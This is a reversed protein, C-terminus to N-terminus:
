LLLEPNMKKFGTNKLLKGSENYLPQYTGDETYFKSCYEKQLLRMGKEFSVGYLNLIQIAIWCIDLCEKVQDAVPEKEVAVCYENFEEKLFAQYLPLLEEKTKNPHTLLLLRNLELQVGGLTGMDASYENILAETTDEM